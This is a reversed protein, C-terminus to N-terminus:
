AGFNVTYELVSDGWSKHDNEIANWQAESGKFNITKLNDCGNFVFEGLNAVSDPIEVSMLNSCEYFASDTISTM